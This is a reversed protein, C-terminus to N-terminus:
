LIHIIPSTYIIFYVKINEYIYIYENILYHIQVDRVGKRVDKCVGERVGKRVGKRAVFWHRLSSPLGYRWSETGPAARSRPALWQRNTFTNTFTDVLSPGRYTYIYIYLYLSELMFYSIHLKNLNCFLFNFKQKM